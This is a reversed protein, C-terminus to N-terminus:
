SLQVVAIEWRHTHTYYIVATGLLRLYTCKNWRICHLNCGAYPGHIAGSFGYQNSVWCAQSFSTHEDM